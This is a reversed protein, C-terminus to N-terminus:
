PTVVTIYSDQTSALEDIDITMTDTSWAGPTPLATAIEVKSIFTEPYSYNIAAAIEFPSVDSGVTFGELGGLEGAVYQLIASKINQSIGNPTTVKILIPVAVPRDFKVLYPQGSVPEILTVEEAGNWACGSSKNELLAAAVNADTGGDVCAWISHPDMLIGEITEPDDSVNELFSLSKVGDVHYLASTIAVPLAVGQFALVNNRYARASQDSQTNSGVVGATPNNVTEWGLINTVIQNLTNEACVIPGYEEAQFDVVAEGAVDLVVTTMTLFVDGAENQAQTGAPIVTGAVGELDVSPVVTRTAAKRQLGLLAMINDLFDGGAVNPNIQNALAANNNVVDSRALAEGVMLLGQPTAPDTVLDNGFVSKFEEQVEALIQSTDPVIVGTDNIYEYAM